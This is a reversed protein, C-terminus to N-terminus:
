NGSANNLTYSAPSSGRESEGTSSQTKWDSRQQPLQLLLGPLAHLVLPGLQEFGQFLYVRRVWDQGAAAAAAARTWINGAKRRGENGTAYVCCALRTM